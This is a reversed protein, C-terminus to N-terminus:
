EADFYVMIKMMKIVHNENPVCARFHTPMGADDVAV